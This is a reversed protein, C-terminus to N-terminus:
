GTWPHSFSWKSLATALLGGESWQAPLCGARGQPGALLFVRDHTNKIQMQGARFLKLRSGNRQSLVVGNEFVLFVGGRFQIRCLWTTPRHVSLLRGLSEQSALIRVQTPVKEGPELGAVGLAGDAGSSAFDDSM